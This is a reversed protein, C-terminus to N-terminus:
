RMPKNKKNPMIHSDRLSRLEGLVAAKPLSSHHGESRLAKRQLGSSLQADNQRGTELTM